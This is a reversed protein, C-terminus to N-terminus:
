GSKRFIIKTIDNLAIVNGIFNGEEDKLKTGSCLISKYIM